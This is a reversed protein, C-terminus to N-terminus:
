QHHELKALADTLRKITLYDLVGRNAKIALVEASFLAEVMSLALQRPLECSSSTNFDTPLGCEPCVGRSDLAVGGGIRWCREICPHPDHKGPAVLAHLEDLTM